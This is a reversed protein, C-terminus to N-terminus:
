EASQDLSIHINLKLVIGSARQGVLLTNLRQVQYYTRYDIGRM